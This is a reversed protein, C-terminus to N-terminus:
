DIALVDWMGCCICHETAIHAMMMVMGLFVVKILRDVDYPMVHGLSLCAFFITNMYVKEGDDPRIIVSPRIIFLCLITNM